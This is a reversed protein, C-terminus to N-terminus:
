FRECLVKDRQIPQCIATAIKFVLMLPEVGIELFVDPIFSDNKFSKCADYLLTWCFRLKSLAVHRCASRPCLMWFGNFLHRCISVSIWSLCGSDVFENKDLLVDFPELGEFPKVFRTILCASGIFASPHIFCDFM